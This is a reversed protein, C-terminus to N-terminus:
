HTNLICGSSSVPISSPHGEELSVDMVKTVQESYDDENEDGETELLFLGYSMKLVNLHNRVVSSSFEGFVSPHEAMLTSPKTDQNIKGQRILKM